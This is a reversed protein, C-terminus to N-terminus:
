HNNPIHYQPGTEPVKFVTITPSYTNVCSNSDTIQISYTYVVSATVGSWIPAIVPIYSYPDDTVGIINEVPNTSDDIVLDWNTSVTTFDMDIQINDGHCISDNLITLTATPIPNVTIALDRTPSDGCGNTIYVSLTGSTAADDFDISVSNDTDAAYGSAGSGSYTWTYSSATVDNPVTYVVGSQEQCVPTTSATFAGPQVPLLPFAVDM